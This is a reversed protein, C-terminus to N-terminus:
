AGVNAVASFADLVGNAGALWWTVHASTHEYIPFKVSVIEYWSMFFIRLVKILTKPSPLSRIFFIHWLFDCLIFFCFHFDFITLTSRILRCVSVGDGGTCITRDNFPYYYYICFSPSPTPCSCLSGYASLLMSGAGRHLREMLFNAWEIGRNLPSFEMNKPWIPPWITRIHDVATLKCVSHSWYHWCIKIIVRLM